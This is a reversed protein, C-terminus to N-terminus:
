AVEEPLRRTTGVAVLAARAGAHGSRVAGEMTAPWGTDTWAGAIVVGPVNTMPGPRLAATGPVARFTANREKTVLTDIVTADRCAPFLEALAKTVMDAVEGPAQGVYADAASMTVALYQRRGTGAAAQLGSSITRDFVWHVPGRVSAAFPLNTVPRDYVVHVNVIASTGLASPDGCPLKIQPDLVRALAWHPLAVVVADATLTEGTELAVEGDRVQHVRRGTLVEVGARGLATAAREGHLTRLPVNSWGVDAAATDSLLGTQFVKAGMAASAQAAPLNITAVTILDWLARVASPSQGRAALWEAFTVQDLQPDDLRLRQLPWAARGIRLRDALSLHRYRLLAPGLHFPAPLRNRRLRALRPAGGPAPDLVAIDLRDQVTVDGASGIRQLFALYATCCRLFVHQGNDVAFNDHDFSWTLGGLRSRREVLTVQAGADACDLAATCGALGGGVVIV